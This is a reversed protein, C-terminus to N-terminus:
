GFFYNSFTSFRLPYFGDMLAGRKVVCEVVNEGCFCWLLVGTKKLVGQLFVWGGRWSFVSVIAL